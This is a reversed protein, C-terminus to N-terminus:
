HNISKKKEKYQWFIKEYDESDSFDNNESENIIDIKKSDNKANKDVNEEKKEKVQTKKEYSEIRRLKIINEMLSNVEDNESIEINKLSKELLVELAGSKKANLEISKELM